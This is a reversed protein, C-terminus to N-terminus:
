IAEGGEIFELANAILAAQHIQEDTAGAINYRINDKFSANFLVPEQSVV